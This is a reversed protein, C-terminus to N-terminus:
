HATCVTDVLAGVLLFVNVLLVCCDWMFCQVPRRGHLHNKYVERSTAYVGRWTMTARGACTVCTVCTGVVCCLVVCRRRGRTVRCVRHPLVTARCPGLGGGRGTPPVHRTPPPPPCRFTHRPVHRSM